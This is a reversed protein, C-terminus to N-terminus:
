VLFNELDKENQMRYKLLAFYLSIKEEFTILWGYTPTAQNTSLVQTSRIPHMAGLRPANIVWFPGLLGQKSKRLCVLLSMYNRIYQCECTSYLKKQLIRNHYQYTCMWVSLQKLTLELIFQWGFYHEFSGVLDVGVASYVPSPLMGRVQLIVMYWITGCILYCQQLDCMFNIFYPFILKSISRASFLFRM